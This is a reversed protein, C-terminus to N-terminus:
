YYAWAGKIFITENNCDPCWYELHKDGEAWHFQRGGCICAGTVWRYLKHYNPVSIDTNSLHATEGKPFAEDMFKKYWNWYTPLAYIPRHIVHHSVSCGNNVVEHMSLRKVIDFHVKQQEPALHEFDEPTMLLSTMMQFHTVADDHDVLAQSILEIAVRPVSFAM